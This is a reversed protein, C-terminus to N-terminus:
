FYFLEEVATKSCELKICNKSMWDVKEHDLLTLKLNETPWKSFLPFNYKAFFILILSLISAPSLSIFTRQIKSLNNCASNEDISIM